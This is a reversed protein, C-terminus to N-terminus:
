AAQEWPLTKVPRRRTTRESQCRECMCTMSSCDAQVERVLARAERNHPAPAAPLGYEKGTLALMYERLSWCEPCRCGSM